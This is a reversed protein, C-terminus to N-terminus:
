RPKRATIISYDLIIERYDMGAFGVASLFGEIEAISYYRGETGAMLFVSHAAIRLPGTKERNLHRDHIVVLGGPPLAAFSKELLLKVTPADWDHLANSWLHVDYGAPLPDRFMDGAVVSVRESYGRRAICKQTVRDVPPKEFVTVKLHPHAAAVCCAYIGSGGAIDLLRRHAKADLQAALVPGVYMGRSDMTGTFQEAFADDEMAEAWPKRAKAGSWGPKDTRLTELLGQYIPRDVFQVFYPGVFWPSDRVLFERSIETLHFAGGKKEIYGMACLLTLMVDVPREALGLSACITQADAPSKALRSFFDLGVIAAAVLEPAYIGDRQRFIETPDTKPRRTLDDM